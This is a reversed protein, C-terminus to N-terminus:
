SLAKRMVVRTIPGKRREPPGASVFYAKPEISETRYGLGAYFPPLGLEAACDLRMVRHGAKRAVREAEAVLAAALGRGQWATSVALLGFWAGDGHVRVRVCGAMVGGIEAILVPSHESGIQARLETEYIRPSPLVHAERLYADNILALLGDADGDTAARFRITAAFAPDPVRAPRVADAARTLKKEMEVYTFPQLTDQGWSLDRGATEGAYRYGLAEYYPRLGVKDIIGIRMAGCGGDLARRECENVLAPAIGGGQRGVATALLGFSAVPPTLDFRVTGAIEDGDVAVIMVSEGDGDVIAAIEERGVRDGPFVMGDRPKYAANIVSVIADVNDSSADRLVVGRAADHPSPSRAGVPGRAEIPRQPM